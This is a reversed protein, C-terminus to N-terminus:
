KEKSTVKIKNDIDISSKETMLESMPVIEGGAVILYYIHLNRYNNKRFCSDYKYVM